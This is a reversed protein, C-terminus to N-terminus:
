SMMLPSSSMTPTTAKGSSIGALTGLLNGSSRVHRQVVALELEKQELAAQLAEGRKHAVQLHDQLLDVEHRTLQLQLALQTTEASGRGAVAEFSTGAGLAGNVASAYAASAAASTELLRLETSLARVAVAAESSVAFGGAYSPHRGGGGAAM